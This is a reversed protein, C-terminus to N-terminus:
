RSGARASRPDAWAKKMGAIRRARVRPNIWSKEQAASNRARVRPDALAKKIAAGRRALFEARAAAVVRFADVLAKKRAQASNM